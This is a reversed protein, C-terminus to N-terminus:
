AIRSYGGILAIRTDQHSLWKVIDSDNGTTPM